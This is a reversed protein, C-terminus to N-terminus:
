VNIIQIFPHHFGNQADNERQMKREKKSPLWPLVGLVIFLRASM